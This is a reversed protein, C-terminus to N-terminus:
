FLMQNCLLLGGSNIRRQQRWREILFDEDSKLKLYEDKDYQLANTKGSFLQSKYSCFEGFNSSLDKGAIMPLGDIVGPSWSGRSSVSHNSQHQAKIFEQATRSEPTIPSADNSTEWQLWPLVVGDMEVPLSRSMTPSHFTERKTIGGISSSTDSREGDVSSIDTDEVNSIFDEIYKEAEETLRKTMRGRDNSRKRARLPKEVVNNKADPLLDRVINSLERGHKEELVIEALLDQKHKESQEVKTAFNRRMSSVAQIFDSNNSLMCDGRPLASTQEIEMRIDDVAHRLEKKMAEYLVSDVDNGTPHEAKKVYVARITREVGNKNYHADRGEDDTLVSSQSSYGDYSKLDKQSLSRRLAPRNNSATPKHCLSMRKNESGANKLNAHSGSNQSHDLDSESDSIQYRVVSVSRRRRSNADSGVRGGGSSNSVNGKVDGSVKSGQRSVSRGRRQSAGAGSAPSSEHHGSALRGRNASDFFEIALDDLSIEPFGSGRVTNVFRGRPAPAEDFRAQTPLRRSLRSLSRCRRNVSSNRNTSSSDDASSNSSAGIPVRKTTSKFAATAM